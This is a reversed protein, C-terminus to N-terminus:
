TCMRSSTTNSSGVGISYCGHHKGQHIYVYSVFPSPLGFCSGIIAERYMMCSISPAEFRFVKCFPESECLIGCVVKSNAKQRTILHGTTLIMNRQRIDESYKVINVPFDAQLNKILVCIFSFLITELVSVLAM